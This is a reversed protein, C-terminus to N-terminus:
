FAKLQTSVHCWYKEEAEGTVAFSIAQLLSDYSTDACNKQSLITATVDLALHRLRSSPLKSFPGLLPGHSPHDIYFYPVIRSQLSIM